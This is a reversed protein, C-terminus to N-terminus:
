QGNIQISYNTVSIYDRDYPLIDFGRTQKPSLTYDSIFPFACEIVAGSIDYLTTIPQVNTMTIENSNQIQGTIDYWGHTTDYSGTSSIVNLGSIIIGNTDYSPTEFKYYRWGTPPRYFIIKFCTKQNPSLNELYTYNDNSGIVNNYSDYLNVSIKVFDLTNNTNNVIEGLIYLNGSMSDTYVTSNDLVQVSTVETPVPILTPTPITTPILTPTSTVDNVVIPIYITFASAIAFIFISVSTLLFFIVILRNKKM